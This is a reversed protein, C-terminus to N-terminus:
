RSTAAARTIQVQVEGVGAFVHRSQQGIRIDHVGTIMGTSIVDGAKLTEGQQARKNLTFALAGLPGPKIAVKGTGVSQGDIFTEVDVTELERWNTIAPGVVVGWNNGFDSIVAGPGVDNLTALPSSAVEVGIHMSKVLPLVTEATWDAKGAPSDAAVVIVVEAEVAAFGGEFVPCQAAAGPAVHHVNAAFAPGILREEPFQAAFAPNVRAVKWGKVADPWRAIAAAQIAYAEALTAPPTGPYEPLSRGAARATTFAEAIQQTASM